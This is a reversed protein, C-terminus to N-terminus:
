APLSAAMEIEVTESPMQMTGVLGLLNCDDDRPSLIADTGDKAEHCLTSLPPHIMQMVRRPTWIDAERFGAAGSMIVNVLLNLGSSQIRFITRSGSSVILIPSWYSGVSRPLIDVVNSMPHAALGLEENRRGM